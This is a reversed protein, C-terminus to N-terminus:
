FNALLIKEASTNSAFLLFKVICNLVEHFTRTKQLSSVFKKPIKRFGSQWLVVCNFIKDFGVVLLGQAVIALLGQWCGVVVL